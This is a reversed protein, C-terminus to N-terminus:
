KNKKHQKKACDGVEGAKTGNCANMAKNVEECRAKKKADEMKSCDRQYGGSSMTRGENGGYAQFSFVGLVCSISLLMLIRKM